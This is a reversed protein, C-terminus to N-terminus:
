LPLRMLEKFYVMEPDNAPVINALDFSWEVFQARYGMYVTLIGLILTLYVKYKLIIYSLSNWM